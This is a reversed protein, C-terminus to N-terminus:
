YNRCQGYQWKVHWLNRGYPRMAAVYPKVSLAMIDGNWRKLHQYQWCVFLCASHQKRSEGFSGDPRPAQLLWLNSSWKGGEEGCWWSLPYLFWVTEQSSLRPSVVCHCKQPVHPSCPENLCAPWPHTNLERFLFSWAPCLPASFSAKTLSSHHPELWQIWWGSLSLHGILKNRFYGVRRDLALAKGPTKLFYM